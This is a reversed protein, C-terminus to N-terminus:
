PWWETFVPLPIQNYRRLDGPGPGTFAWRSVLGKKSVKYRGLFFLNWTHGKLDVVEIM